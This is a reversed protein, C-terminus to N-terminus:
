ACSIKIHPSQSINRHQLICKLYLFRIYFHVYFIFIYQYQVQMRKRMEQQNYIIHNQLIKPRQRVTTLISRQPRLSGLEIRPLPM